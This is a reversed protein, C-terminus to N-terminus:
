AHMQSFRSEPMPTSQQRERGKAGVTGGAEEDGGKCCVCVRPAPPLPRRAPLDAGAPHVLRLDLLLAVNEVQHALEVRQPFHRVEPVPVRRRGAQLVSCDDEEARVDEVHVGERNLRDQRDLDAARDTITDCM